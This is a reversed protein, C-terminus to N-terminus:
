GCHSGSSFDKNTANVLAGGARAKQNEVFSALRNGKMLLLERLDISM